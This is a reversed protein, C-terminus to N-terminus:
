KFYVMIFYIIQAFYLHGAIRPLTMSFVRMYRGVIALMFGIGFWAVYNRIPIQADSWRWYNLQVAAPEMLIDFIMMLFAILLMQAGPKLREKVYRLRQVIAAGALLTLLWAFGIAVPVGSIAPKLVGGYQYAGFILGTHVGYAEILFSFVIVFLSWILFRRPHTDDSSHLQIYHEIVIWLAFLMILPGAMWRMLTQFVGLIHWLGGALLLIYIVGIKLRYHNM